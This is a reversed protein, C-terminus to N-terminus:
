AGLASKQEAYLWKDPDIIAGASATYEPAIGQLPPAQDTPFRGSFGVCKFCERRAESSPRL